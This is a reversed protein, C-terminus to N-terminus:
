AHREAASDLRRSNRRHELLAETAARLQTSLRADLGGQPSRLLVGADVASDAVWDWPVDGVTELLELDDPHVHVALSKRTGHERLVHLTMEKLVDPRLVRQGLIRCAIEHALAVIDDEAEARWILLAQEASSLIEDLRVLRAQTAQAFQAADSKAQTAAERRGEEIGQAFGERRAQARADDIVAEWHERALRAEITKGEEVGQERARAILADVAVEVRPEAASEVPARPRPRSLVLAAADIAVGRLVPSSGHSV